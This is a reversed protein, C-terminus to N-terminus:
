VTVYNKVKRRLKDCLTDRNTTGSTSMISNYFDRINDQSHMLEEVYRQDYEVDGAMMQNLTHFHERWYQQIQPKLTDLLHHIRLEGESNWIKDDGLYYFKNRASDTCAYSLQALNEEPIDISLTDSANSINSM